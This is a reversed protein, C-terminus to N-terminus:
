EASLTGIADHSGMPSVTAGVASQRLVTGGCIGVGFVYLWGQTFDFLHSNVLSSSANELVVLMGIWAILGGGRFLLIHAAWMAILVATGLAGLEIEAALIQNHPNVTAVASATGARGAAVRRFQETISGTGHGILPAATIIGISERLFQLHLGTSNAADSHTYARLESFSHEVRARLYASGAWAAAAFLAAILGGTIVGRWGLLRYGLAAILVPAVLIATRSTVVFANDALFAAALGILAIVVIWRRARWHASAAGILALACIMFIGSQWVYDKAPVGFAIIHNAV